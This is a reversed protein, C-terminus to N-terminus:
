ECGVKKGCENEGWKSAGREREGSVRVGSEERSM